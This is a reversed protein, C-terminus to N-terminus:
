FSQEGLMDMLVSSDVSASADDMEDGIVCFAPNTLTVIPGTITRGFRNKPMNVKLEGSDKLNEDVYLCIIYASDREISNLEALDLLEYEGDRTKARTYGQRSIQSLVIVSIPKGNLEIALEMFFDMYQNGPDKLEKASDLYRFLQIYDVILFDVDFALSLLKMRIGSFSLSTFSVRDLIDFKGYDPNYRLDKEVIDFIFEEEEETLESDLISISSVPSCYEAFKPHMSHRSLIFSWIIEDPMEISVFVGNQGCEVLNKYFLSVATRTKMHGTFAALTMLTGKRVGGMEKDIGKIFTLVGAPLNKRKNYSEKLTLKREESSSGELILMTQNLLPTVQSLDGEQALKAIGVLSQAFDSRRDKDLERDFLVMAEASNTIELCETSKSDSFEYHEVLFEYSPWEHTKEYASLISSIIKGENSESMVLKSAIKTVAFKSEGVTDSSLIRLLVGLVLKQNQAVVTENM